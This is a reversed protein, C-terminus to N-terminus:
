NFLRSGLRLLIAGEQIALPYDQSMGMSLETFDPLNYTCALEDKLNSLERFAQQIHAQNDPTMLPAMTMLGRFSLGKLIVLAPFHERLENVSFGHKTAEQSINVQLLVPTIVNQKQSEDSLKQALKLSDISHILSVTNIVKPVKKTQLTGILHWSIDQPLQSRKAELEQLRSEGFHRQGQTYLAQIAEVSQGKSIAVLQIEAPDRGCKKALQAIEELMSSLQM